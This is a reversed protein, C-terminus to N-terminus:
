WQTFNPLQSLITSLEFTPCMNEERSIVMGSSYAIVDKRWWRVHKVIRNIVKKYLGTWSANWYLKDTPSSILWGINDNLNMKITMNQKM